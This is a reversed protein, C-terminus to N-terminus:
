EGGKGDGIAAILSYPRKGTCALSTALHARAGIM